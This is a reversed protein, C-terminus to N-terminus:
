SRSEQPHFLSEGKPGSSSARCCLAVSRLAALTLASRQTNWHLDYDAAAYRWPRFALERGIGFPLDGVSRFSSRRNALSRRCGATGVAAVQEAATPSGLLAALPPECWPTNWHLDYDAVAYRRPRFALEPATPAASHIKRHEGFEVPAALVFPRGSSTFRDRRNPILSHRM